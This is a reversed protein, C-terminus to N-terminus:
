DTLGIALYVQVDRAELGYGVDLGLLPLVIQRLYFRTGVGVSNKFPALFPQEDRASNPLYNRDPNSTDLFTCYGSDFFALGRISLGQITMLPLSYEVNALFRVDGRFQSNLYGRMSTGGMSFEQQFPLNHGYRADARVIFNHRALIKWARYYNAAVYYYDFDSGLAPLGGEWSLMYRHGSAIGYWNARRDITLVVETSVDAGEAGPNRMAGNADVGSPGLDTDRDGMGAYKLSLEDSFLSDSPYSVQAGRLRADIKIGRFLEIGLKVGANLYNIRSERIKEPSDLFGTPAAFEFVRSQKLFTDFQAYFRSGGISPIVWAGIFFTDGTAIQGYILLKQNHGFLNNEGFGIGGGTNTPQNYFAPAIVWSHKDKVLLHVRVGGEVVSWFTEVDKFLGSSVLRRKVEEAMEANWEDGVEIDAILAVTDSSTKSNGKVVIAKIPVTGVLPAQSEVPVDTTTM